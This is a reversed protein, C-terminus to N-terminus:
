VTFALPFAVLFHCLASYEPKQKMEDGVVCMVLLFDRINMKVNLKLPRM